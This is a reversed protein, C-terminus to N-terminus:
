EADAVEERGLAKAIAQLGKRRADERNFESSDQAYWNEWAMLAALLDPAAAILCANAIAVGPTNQGYAVAIPVTDSLIYEGRGIPGAHYWPGPSSHTVMSNINSM